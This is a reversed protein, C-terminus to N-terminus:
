QAGNTRVRARWEEIVTYRLHRLDAVLREAYGPHIRWVRFAADWQGARSLLEKLAAVERKDYYDFYVLVDDYHEGIWECTVACDSM